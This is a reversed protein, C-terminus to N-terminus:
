PQTLKQQLMALRRSSGDASTWCSSTLFETGTTLNYKFKSIDDTHWWCCFSSLPYSLFFHNGSVQQSANLLLVAYGKSILSPSPATFSVSWNTATSCRSTAHQLLNTHWKLNNSKSPHKLAAQKSSWLVLYFSFVSLQTGKKGQAQNSPLM